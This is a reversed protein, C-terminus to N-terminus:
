ARQERAFCAVRTASRQVFRPASASCETRLEACRPHFRCGSPYHAVQPVAGPITQLRAGPQALAPRAALLARTYPHQPREFLDVVPTEEVIRGAYMVLVRSAMEAVLGLDHTILLLAMGRKRRLERLLDLVQAQVTVDLATTPEDAILLDPEGALAMAILVRQRMGGSYRHPYEDLQREPDPLKVERLLEAARARADRGHLGAHLELVEVIQEGVTLVPNLATMPEQFVMAIRRGRVRRLERESARVLDLGDFRISGARIALPPDLLRLLSLATLSKGCGSEGVVAVTEARDVRFSVADVVAGSTGALEITLGEVELLAPNM